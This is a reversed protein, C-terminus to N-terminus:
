VVSFTVISVIILTFYVTAIYRTIYDDMLTITVLVCLSTITNSM